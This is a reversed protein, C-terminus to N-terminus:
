LVINQRIYNSLSLFTYSPLAIIDEYSYCGRFNLFYIMMMLFSILLSPADMKSTLLMLQWANEVGAADVNARCADLLLLM